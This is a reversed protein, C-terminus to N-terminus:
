GLEAPLAVSTKVMRAFEAPTVGVIRKFHRGFHGQDAFGLTAAVAVPPVGGALLVRAREVRLSILYHHPTTGFRRKFHRLLVFKNMGAMQALEDLSPNQEVMAVLYDRARLVAPSQPSAQDLTEASLADRESLAGILEALAEDRRFQSPHESLARVLRRLDPLEGAPMFKMARYSIGQPLLPEAIDISLFEVAAVDSSWVCWPHRVCLSDEPYDLLRGDSRVGHRKGIKLCVGLGASVHLPFSRARATATVIELGGLFGSPRRVECGRLATASVHDEERKEVCGTSCVLADGCDLKAQGKEATRGRCV